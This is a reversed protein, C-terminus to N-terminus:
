RFHHLLLGDEFLWLGDAGIGEVFDKLHVRAGVPFRGREGFGGEM